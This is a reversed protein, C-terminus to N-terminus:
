GKIHLMLYTLVRARKLVRMYTPHQKMQETTSRFTPNHGRTNRGCILGDLIQLIIGTKVRPTLSM